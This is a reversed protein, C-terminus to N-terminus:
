ELGTRLADFVNVNLPNQECEPCKRAGPEPGQVLQLLGQSATPQLAGIEYNTNVEGLGIHTAAACLRCCGESCEVTM